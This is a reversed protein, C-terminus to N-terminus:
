DKLVNVSGCVWFRKNMYGFCGVTSQTVNDNIVQGVPRLKESIFGFKIMLPFIGDFKFPGAQDVM